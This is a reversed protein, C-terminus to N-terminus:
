SASSERYRGRDESGECVLNREMHHDYVYAPYRMALNEPSDM